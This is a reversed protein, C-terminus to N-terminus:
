AGEVSPDNRRFNVKPWTRWSSAYPALLCPAVLTLGIPPPRM